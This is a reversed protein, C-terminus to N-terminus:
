GAERVMLMYNLVLRLRPGWPTQLMVTVALLCFLALWLRCKFSLM